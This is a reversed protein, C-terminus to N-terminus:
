VVGESWHDNGKNRDTVPLTGIYQSCGAVAVGSLEFAELRTRLSRLVYIELATPLTSPEVPM